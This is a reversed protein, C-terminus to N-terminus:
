IGFSEYTVNAAKFGAIARDETFVLGSMLSCSELTMQTILLKGVPSVESCMQVNMFPLLRFFELTFKTPSLEMGLLLVRIMNWRVRSLFWERAVNTPFPKGISKFPPLVTLCNM